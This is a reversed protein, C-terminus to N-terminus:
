TNVTNLMDPVHPIFSIDHILLILMDPVHPIFTFFYM